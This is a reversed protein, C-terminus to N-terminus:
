NLVPLMTCRCNIVDGADGNSDGPYELGGPTGTEFKQNLAIVTGDLNHNYEGDRVKEDQQSLWEKGEADGDRYGDLTGWNMSGVLETESISLARSDFSDFEENIAKLLEDFSVSVTEVLEKQPRVDACIKDIRAATTKTVSEAMKMVRAVVFQDDWNYKTKLSKGARSLQIEARRYGSEVGKSIYPKSIKELDQKAGNFDFIKAATLVEGREFVEKASKITRARQREFARKIAEGFHGEQARLLTDFSKWENKRDFMVKRISKEPQVPPEINPYFDDFAQPRIRPNPETGTFEPDMGEAERAEERSIINYQLQLELKRKVDDSFKFEPVKIVLWYDKGLFRQVIQNSMASELMQKTPKIGTEVELYGLVEMVSRNINQGTLLPLFSGMVSVIQEIISDMDRGFQLTRSGGARATLEMGIPLPEIGGIKGMQSKAWKKLATLMEPTIINPKGQGDKGPSAYASAQTDNTLWKSNYKIVNDYISIGKAAMRVPSMPRYINAPDPYHIYCVDEAPLPEQRNVVAWSALRGDRDLKYDILEPNFPTIGAFMKKNLGLTRIYSCNKGTAELQMVMTYVLTEWTGYTYPGYLVNLLDQVAMENQASEYQTKDKPSQKVIDIEYQSIRKAKRDAVAYVWGQIAEMQAKPTRLYNIGDGKDQIASILYQLDGYDSPVTDWLHAPDAAYITQQSKRTFLNKINM